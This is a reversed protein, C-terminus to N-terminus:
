ETYDFDIMKNGQILWNVIKDYCDEALEKSCKPRMIQGEILIGFKRRLYNFNYSLADKKIRNLTNVFVKVDKKAENYAALNDFKNAKAACTTGFYLVVDFDLDLAVEVVQTAIVFKISLDEQIMKEIRKRDSFIFKSHYCIPQLHKFKESLTQAQKVTNVV